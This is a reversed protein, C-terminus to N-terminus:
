GLSLSAPMQNRTPPRVDAGSRKFAPAAARRGQAGKNQAANRGQRLCCFHLYLPELKGAEFAEDIRGFQANFGAQGANDAGIAAALGVQQFGYAPDHAFGAGFGHAAAAHLIHDEGAGGGPGLAIKGFDREQRHLFLTLKKGGHIYARVAFQLDGAPDLAACAAGIAGIAAVHAGLIHRQDKGVGGGARVARRQDALASDGGDDSGAGLFPAGHQLFRGPNRAQMDPALIGLLFQARGFGIKGPEGFYQQVHVRAGIGQTTLGAGGFAIDAQGILDPDGFRAGKEGAPTLGMGAGFGGARLRFLRLGGDGGRLVRLEGGGRMGLGRQGRQGLTAGGGLARAIVGTLSAM